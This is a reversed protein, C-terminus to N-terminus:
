LKFMRMGVVMFCPWLEGLFDMRDFNEPMSMEIWIVIRMWIVGV